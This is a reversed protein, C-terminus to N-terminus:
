QPRPQGQRGGAEPRRRRIEWTVLGAKRAKKLLSRLVVLRLNVTSPSLGRGSIVAGKKNRSGVMSKSYGGVWKNAREYGAQLLETVAAEVSRRRYKAYDKLSESYNYSTTENPRDLFAAILAAPTM